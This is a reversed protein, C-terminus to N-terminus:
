GKVLLINCFKVFGIRIDLDCPLLCRHIIIVCCNLRRQCIALTHIDEFYRGTGCIATNLNKATLCNIQCVREFSIKAIIIRIFQILSRKGTHRYVALNLSQSDAGTICSVKPNVLVQKILVIYFHRRVHVLPFLGTCSKLCVTNDSKHLTCSLSSEVHIGPM